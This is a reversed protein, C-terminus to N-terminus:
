SLNRPVQSSHHHIIPTKLACDVVFTFRSPFSLLVTDVEFEFSYIGSITHLTESLPQTRLAKNHLRVGMGQRTALQSFYNLIGEPTTVTHPSFTPILVANPHYLAAIDSPSGGCVRSVWHSLVEEAHAFYLM